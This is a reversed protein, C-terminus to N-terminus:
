CVYFGCHCCSGDCFGCYCCDGKSVVIVVTVVVSVVIVVTVAGSVVTVVTIVVMVVDVIIIVVTIITVVVVRRMLACGGCGGDIAVMVGVYGYCYHCVIVMVIVGSIVAAIFVGAVVVLVTAYLFHPLVLQLFISMQSMTILEYVTILLKNYSYQVIPCEPTLSLRINGFNNDIGGFSM